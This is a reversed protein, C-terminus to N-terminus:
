EWTTGRRRTRKIDKESRKVGNTYMTRKKEVRDEKYSQNTKYKNSEKIEKKM